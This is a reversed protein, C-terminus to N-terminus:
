ADSWLDADSQFEGKYRGKLKLADKASRGRPRVELDVVAGDTLKLRRAEEAPVRAFYTGGIRKITTEVM